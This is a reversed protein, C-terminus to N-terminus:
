VKEGYLDLFAAKEKTVDKGGKEAKKIVLRTMEKVNQAAKIKEATTM